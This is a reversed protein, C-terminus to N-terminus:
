AHQGAAPWDLHVRTGQGPESEIELRAGHCGCFRYALFMGLGLGQGPEKTTFFPEGLRARLEPAIGTGRDCVTFRVRDGAARATLRVRTETPSAQLGNSVLNALVVSLSQLPADIQSAESEPDLEAELRGASAGLEARVRELVAGLPARQSLEASAAGARAGLRELVRKCREVERRIVRAEALAAAPEREILVELETAVIAITGLPTNLEHAAGAALTALSALKEARAGEREAESLQRQRARLTAVVRSVMAGNVAAIFILVALWTGPPPAAALALVPSAALVWCAAATAVVLLSVWVADLLLAGVGVLVVYGAILPNRAGGALALELTLWATDALLVAGLVGRMLERGSRARLALAANSLALIGLAGWSWVPAALLGSVQALGLAFTALGITHWRARVLWALAVAGSVLREGVDLAASRPGRKPPARNKSPV